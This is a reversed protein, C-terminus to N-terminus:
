KSKVAGKSVYAVVVKKAADGIASGQATRMLGFWLLAVGGLFYGVRIWNTKDSSFDILNQLDELAAYGPIQEKLNGTASDIPSAGFSEVANKARASFMKYKNNTYTTWASWGQSKWVEYAMKANDSPRKWAYKKFLSQHLKSIQWLGYHGAGITNYAEPNGGSEALAVAVAIELDKDRFGGSGAATAIDKDSLVAM